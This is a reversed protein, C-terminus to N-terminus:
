TQMWQLGLGSLGSFDLEVGYTSNMGWFTWSGYFMNSEKFGLSVQFVVM